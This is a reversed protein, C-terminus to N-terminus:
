RLRFTVPLSMQVKVPKGRQKGPRFTMQRVAELAAQDLLKHVGRTVQPNQVRGQEDVVFQVFV